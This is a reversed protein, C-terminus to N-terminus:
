GEKHKDILALVKKEAEDFSCNNKEAFEEVANYLEDLDNPDAAFEKEAHKGSENLPVILKGDKALEVIKGFIETAKEPDETSDVHAQMLEIAAPAVGSSQLQASFQKKASEKKEAQLKELEKQAGDFQRAKEAAEEPYMGFKAKYEERDMEGGKPKNNEPKKDRGEPPTDEPAKSFKSEFWQKLDEVVQAFANKGGAEAMLSIGEDTDEFNYTEGQGAASYIELRPFKFYPETAGLLAVATIEAEDHRVEVSRYPYKLQGIEYEVTAESLDDFDAYVTKGEIQFNSLFGVAPKENVFGGGHGLIIPPFYSSSARKKMTAKLREGWEQDYKLGRIEGLQFIPVKEVKCKGNDKKTVKYKM